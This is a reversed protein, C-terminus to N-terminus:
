VEKGMYAYPIDLHPQIIEAALGMLGAYPHNQNKLREALGALAGLCSWLPAADAPDPCLTLFELIMPLYDPLEGIPADYGEHHYIWLLRALAKGRDESDGMLHYTLHLSGAPDLDFAQTYIEQLEISSTDGAYTLFEQLPQRHRVDTVEEVVAGLGVLDERWSSTPYDLLFALLKCLRQENGSM